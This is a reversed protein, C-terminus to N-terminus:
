LFATRLIECNKCCLVQTPLLTAVRWAQLKILFLSWCLNKGTFIAFNNLVGIIKFFLQSGSSRFGIFHSNTVCNHLESKQEPSSKTQPTPTLLFIVLNLCLKYFHQCLVVPYQIFTTNLCAYRPSEFCELLSIFSVLLNSCSFAHILFLM